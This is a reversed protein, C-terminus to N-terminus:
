GSRWSNTGDDTVVVAATSGHKLWLMIEPVIWSFMREPVTAAGPGIRAVAEAGVGLMFGAQTWKSRPVPTRPLPPFNKSSTGDVSIVAQFEVHATMSPVQVDM